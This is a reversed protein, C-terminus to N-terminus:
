KLCKVPHKLGQRAKGGPIVAPITCATYGWFCTLHSCYKLFKSLFQHAFTMKTSKDYGLYTKESGALSNFIGAPFPKLFM